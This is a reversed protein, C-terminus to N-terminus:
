VSQAPMRSTGSFVVTTGSRYELTVDFDESSSQLLLQESLNLQPSTPPFNYVKDLVPPTPKSPRAIVLHVNDFVLGVSRANAPFVPTVRLLGPGPRNPATPNDTCTTLALAWLGIGALRIAQGPLRPTRRGSTLDQTKTM